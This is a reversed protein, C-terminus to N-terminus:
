KCLAFSICVSFSVHCGLSTLTTPSHHASTSPLQLAHATDGRPFNLSLKELQESAKSGPAGVQVSDVTWDPSILPNIAHAVQPWSASHQLM